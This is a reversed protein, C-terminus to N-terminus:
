QEADSLLGPQGTADSGTAGSAGVVGSQETSEDAYELRQVTAFSGAPKAGYPACIDDLIMKVMVDITAQEQALHIRDPASEMQEYYKRGSIAMTGVYSAIGIVQSVMYDWKEAESPQLNWKSGYGGVIVLARKFRRLAICLRM